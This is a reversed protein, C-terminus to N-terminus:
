RPYLDIIEFAQSEKSWELRLDYTNTNGDVTLKIGPILVEGPNDQSVMDGSINQVLVNAGLKLVEGRVNLVEIQVFHGGPSLNSYDWVLAFGGREADPYNPYADRLGETLGGHPIDCVFEGDIYLKVKSIGEGDLAWGYITKLGLVRKGESPSELAGIIPLHANSSGSLESSHNGGKNDVQKFNAVLNVPRDIGLNVPNSNGSVDGSWSVFQFGANSEAKVSIKQGQNLWVIGSPIVRGGDSPALSTTLAYQTKFTATYTRGSAPAVLTQSQPKRNSWSSFVYQVGPSGAQPSSADMTHSSGVEWEFMQPSVYTVGDVTVQLGDPNTKVSYTKVPPKVTLTVARSQSDAKNATNSIVVTDSYSGPKQQKVSSGISVVVQTEEGPGLSGSAPATTVWRPKKVVKWKLLKKSRNHLTYTQGTPDFLGGQMGSISLSDLPTVDFSGVPAFNATVTKNGNMTLTVPNATGSADGSWSSFSYGSGATATLTVQEGTSYSTKDPNKAVSGSGNVNVALTYQSPSTQTFNATVTKNGNMTLTVPNATGSADGSWSSFSYGSGATATLTVQEGTSYSTKDPNKAVSGSGNVNVALTFQTPFTEVFNATVTMNGNMTLTVPNATGSADGSWSSFSYGSGPTATLTVQEGTSYSTKDPNKAVSGSGNVNVALTYQAPSTQTFNATVTKNGNMTLTVPNATGSAGGSWSSFSYGSGPTATLTVQEGPNYTPKGPNRAVSGSGVVNVTLSYQMPPILVFNATVTMNGNM